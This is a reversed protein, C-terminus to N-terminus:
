ATASSCLTRAITAGQQVSAAIHVLWGAVGEPAGSRYGSLAAEYRELGLLLLGEEPVTLADPDVGRSVLVLRSAARAILGNGWEFPAVDLLEGQVVAAVVVGSAQSSTVTDALGSLRATVGPGVRPRGLSDPAVVDAAALTHLRALAQLPAQRWTDSLSRIEGSIRLSGAALRGSEDDGFPPDFAAVDVPDAGELQASAWASRRRSAARVEGRSRRLAPERLLGDIAARASDAAEFVGPLEGLSALVDTTM